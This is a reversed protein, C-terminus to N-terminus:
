LSKLFTILDKKEEDKLRTGYLHGKDEVLDPCDSLELLATALGRPDDRYRVHALAAYVGASSNLNAYLNVPSGAPVKLVAAEGLDKVLGDVRRLFAQRAAPKLQALPALKEPPVKKALRAKLDDLALDFALDFARDARDHLKEQLAAWGVPLTVKVDDLLGPAIRDFARDAARLVPDALEGGVQNAELWAELERRLADRGVSRLFQPVANDLDPIFTSEAATRKVWRHRHEPNLLKDVGDEFMRLRGEGSVDIAYDVWSGDPRREGVRGGANPFMAKTGDPKVVYYDGVANNHLYPATAWMAALSPTRYYGRGGGPPEFDIHIPAKVSDPLPAQPPFVPADLPIRGLPPLAKYERSSFEAWIDGDVANTGLARAMNTGLDPDTVPYRRDDALYNEKLFDILAAEREGDNNIKPAPKSSHCRACEQLFLVGGRLWHEDHAPRAAAAAKADEENAAHAADELRAPTYSALYKELAPARRWAEAWDWGFPEDGYASTFRTKLEGLREATIPQVDLGLAEAAAARDKDPFAAVVEAIRFPRQRRGTAPNNLRDLWYEGECGINIPVRMLAWRLGVSDSGDKLVHMADVEKGSPAHEKFTPRYKLNSIVNMTNPNNLFDYSIRSTESTGPQQTAAYQYLFDHDLLGRAKYPDATRPDPNKDGLVVRGKGFFLEGERFYQNGVNAALNEWRPNAPDKPPNAPDFAIHCLACSFGVLYPPEVKGPNKFYEELNWSEKRFQKNPFLRLGVIGSPRGYERDDIPDDRGPYKGPYKERYKPNGPYYDYPDGEWKDLYLGYEDPQDNEVCNPENILGLDRFRTKRNRSDLVRFFDVSVPAPLDGALVSVKRLFKQNGWTWHIWTDRGLRQAAADPNKDDNWVKWLGNPGYYYYSDKKTAREDAARAEDRPPPEAGGAQARCPTGLVAGAAAFLAAVVAGSRHLM